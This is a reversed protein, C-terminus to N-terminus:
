YKKSKNKNKRLRRTARKKRRGGEAVKTLVLEYLVRQPQWIRRNAQFTGRLGKPLRDYELLVGILTKMHIIRQTDNMNTLM